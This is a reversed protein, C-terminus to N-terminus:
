GLDFPSSLYLMTKTAPFRYVKDNEINKCRAIRKTTGYSYGDAIDFGDFITLKEIVKYINSPSDLDCVISGENIKELRVQM